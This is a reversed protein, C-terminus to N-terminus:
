WWHISIGFIGILIQIMDEPQEDEEKEEDLKMHTDWYNVGLALGYVPFIQVYM